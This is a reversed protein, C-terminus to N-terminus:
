DGAHAEHDAAGHRKRRLPVLADFEAAAPSQRSKREAIADSGTGTAVCNRTTVRYAVSAGIHTTILAAADARRALSTPDLYEALRYFSTASRRTGSGSADKAQWVSRGGQATADLFPSRPNSDHVLQFCHRVTLQREILARFSIALFYLFLFAEIHTSFSRRTANRM